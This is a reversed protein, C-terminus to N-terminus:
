AGSFFRRGRDRRSAGARRLAGILDTDLTGYGTESWAGIDLRYYHVTREGHVFDLVDPEKGASVDRACRACAPVDVRRGEEDDGDRWTVKRTPGTHLPNFWCGPSPRWSGAGGAAASRAQEGRRVLVLAGVVDAPSTSVALVREAAAHHEMAQEWVELAGADLRDLEQAILRQGLALLEAEADRRLARDEAARVTRLVTTPLVFSKARARRGRLAGVLRRGGGVALAAVVLGVVVLAWGGVDGDSSGPYKEDDDLASWLEYAEGTVLLEEAREVQGVLDGPAAHAAMRTVFAEDPQEGFSQLRLEQSDADWGLYTADGGVDDHLWAVLQSFSGQFRDDARDVEVLVVRLDATEARTVVQELRLEDAADLGHQQAFAPAVWVGDGTEDLEAEIQTLLADDIDTTPLQVVRGTRESM